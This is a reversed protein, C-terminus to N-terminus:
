GVLPLSLGKFINFYANNFILYVKLGLHDMFSVCLKIEACLKAVYNMPSNMM